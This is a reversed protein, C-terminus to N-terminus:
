SGATMERDTRPMAVGGRPHASPWAIARVLKGDGPERGVEGGLSMVPRIRASAAPLEVGAVEHCRNCGLAVFAIKGREVDGDPPLRFGAPSRRGTNCAPAAALLLVM